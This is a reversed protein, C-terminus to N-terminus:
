PEKWQERLRALGRSVRKRVAIESCGLEAAIEAYSRELVVRSRVARREHEPLEDVLAILSESGQASLREVLQLDSDQLAVAAMKLRRRARDEVRRRRRSGRLKNRAIGLVWPLASEGQPQYRRSSLLVAAFVEAALDAAAERDRTQSVLFAVVAALHREYFVAFAAGNRDAVAALLDADCWGQRDEARGMVVWVDCM